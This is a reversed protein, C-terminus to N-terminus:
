LSLYCIKGTVIYHFTHNTIFCYYTQVIKIKIMKYKNKTVIKM